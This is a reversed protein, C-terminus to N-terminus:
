ADLSWDETHRLRLVFALVPHCLWRADDMYCRRAAVATTTMSTSSGPNTRPPVMQLGTWPPPASGRFETFASSIAGSSLCIKSLVPCWRCRRSPALLHRERTCPIASPPQRM